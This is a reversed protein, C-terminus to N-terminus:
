RMKRALLRSSASIDVREILSGGCLKSAFLLRFYKCDARDHALVACFDYLLGIRVAM